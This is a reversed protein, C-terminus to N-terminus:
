AATTTQINTHINNPRKDKARRVSILRPIVFAASSFVTGWLVAVAQLVNKGAPTITAVNDVILFVVGIFAINYMSFILQKAEGFREDVNRTLYALYCGAVILGAEYILETIFLAPTNHACILDNTILGPMIEIQSTQRPPDALSVVLLIFIQTCLMPVM